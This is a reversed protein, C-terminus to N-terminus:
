LTELTVVRPEESLDTLKDCLRWLETTMDLDRQKGEGGLSPIQKFLFHSGLGQTM